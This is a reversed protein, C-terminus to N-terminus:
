PEFREKLRDHLRELKDKQEQTLAAYGKAAAKMHTAALQSVLPAVQTAVQQMEAENNTKVAARGREFLAKLQDRAAQSEAQAAQRLVQGQAQQAPTLNLYDTLFQALKEGRPHMGFRGFGPGAQAWIMGTTVLALATVAAFRLYNKKNNM